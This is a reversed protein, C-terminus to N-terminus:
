GGGIARTIKYQRWFRVCADSYGPPLPTYGLRYVTTDPETLKAIEREHAFPDACVGPAEPYWFETVSLGSDLLTRVLSDGALPNFPGSWTASKFYFGPGGIGNLSDYPVVTTDIEFRAPHPAIPGSSTSKCSSSVLTVTVVLLIVSSRSMISSGGEVPPSQHGRRLQGHGSPDYLLRAAPYHILSIRTSYLKQSRNKSTREM